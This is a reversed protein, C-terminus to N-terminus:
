RSSYLQEALLTEDDLKDNKALHYLRMELNTNDTYNLLASASGKGKRELIDILKKLEDM